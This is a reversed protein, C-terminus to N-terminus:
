SSKKIIKRLNKINAIAKPSTPNLTLKHTADCLTFELKRLGGLLIWFFLALNIAKKVFSFLRILSDTAIDTHKNKTQRDSKEAGNEPRKAGM